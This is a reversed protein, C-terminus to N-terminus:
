SGLSDRTLIRFCSPTDLKRPIEVIPDFCRCFVRTVGLSMEVATPGQGVSMSDPNLSGAPAM